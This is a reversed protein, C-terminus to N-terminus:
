LYLFSKSEAETYRTIKIAPKDCADHKERKSTKSRKEKPKYLEDLCNTKSHIKKHCEHCLAMTKPPDYTIHHVHKCDPNYVGISKTDRGNFLKNCRECKTIGIKYIEDYCSHCVSYDYQHGQIIKQYFSNKECIYCINSRKPMGDDDLSSLQIERLCNKDKIKDFDNLYELIKGDLFFEGFIKDCNPCVNAYYRMHKTKSFRYEINGYEKFEELSPSYDMYPEGDQFLIPLIVTYTNKCNWCSYLVPYARLIRETEKTKYKVLMGNKGDRTFVKINNKSESVLM